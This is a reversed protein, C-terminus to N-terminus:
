APSVAPTVGHAVTGPHILERRGGARPRRSGSDSPGPRCSGRIRRGPVARSGRFAPSSVRNSPMLARACPLDVEDDPAVSTGNGLPGM